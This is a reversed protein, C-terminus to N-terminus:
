SHFYDYIKKALNKSIGDVSSLDNIASSKIAKISGFHRLLSRKRVAGISPIEDLESKIFSKSRKARHTGIAYRHSEDRLRQLYYLTPDNIPLSFPKKNKIFFREKGANRDKGKAIGVVMIDKIGLDKLVKDVKGIQGAGGDILILDPWIESEKNPDEKILRKFRRNLVEEMMAFDDQGSATKINFKRYTKKLFGNKGAAIMAGIANKGSIHSNDYVEIRKIEKKIGFLKQVNKLHKKQESEESMKRSLAQSANLCANDLLRKRQNKQPIQLVVKRSIKESLAQEILKKNIPNVNLILLPPPDNELYFQSIFASIIEEKDVLKNHSLFFTKSGYNRNSRFFFIHIATKNAIQYLGIVDADGLGQVYVDQKSQIKTLLKIRDRLSAALEFDLADSAKQMEKAMKQQVDNSKGRLFDCAKKVQNSYKDKSIKDVCPANCRKIHFQLCPRKRNKFMNDSCNRLMFIKQLLSITDNIASGTAFPGFYWAKEKKLGRHKALQPFDHDKTIKIYPYSKDDRLVVNFPPKFRRILNAELLLAEVETHTTIVEINKVQAVMRQIRNPQRSIQTYSQVRKKLNKAKGIYLISGNNDLMQYVGSNVPMNKLHDKIISAGLDFTKKTKSKKQDTM